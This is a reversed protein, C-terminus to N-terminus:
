GHTSGTPTRHASGTHTERHANSLCQREVLAANWSYQGHVNLLATLVASREMPRQHAYIFWPCKHPPRPLEHVARSAWVMVNDERCTKETSSLTGYPERISCSCHTSMCKAGTSRAVFFISRPTTSNTIYTGCSSIYVIHDYSNVVGPASYM